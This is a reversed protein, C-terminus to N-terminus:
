YVNQQQYVQGPGQVPQQLVQQQPPQPQAAYYGQQWQLGLPMTVQAAQSPNMAPPQAGWQADPIGLPAPGGGGGSIPSQDHYSIMPAGQPIFAHAIPVHAFVPAPPPTYYVEPASLMGKQLVTLNAEGWILPPCTNTPDVTQAVVVNIQHQPDSAWPIDLEFTIRYQSKILSTCASPVASRPLQFTGAIRGKGKAEVRQAIRQSGISVTSSFERGQAKGTVLHDLSIVVAEVPEECESNDVDVCAVLNDRDLAIVTRDMYFRAANKGKSCCCCCTIDFHRDTTIPYPVAWQDARLPRVITFPARAASDRGNPIDVYAKVQYFIGCYDKGHQRVFLSAPLNAPLRFAFPYCYTGPAIIWGPCQQGYKFCGALTILQKFFCSRQGFVDTETRIRQGDAGRVEREVEIHVDERGVLKVRIATAQVASTTTVQM